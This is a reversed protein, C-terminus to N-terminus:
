KLVQLTPLHTPNSIPESHHQIWNVSSSTSTWYSFLDFVNVQKLDMKWIFRSQSTIRKIQFNYSQLPISVAM